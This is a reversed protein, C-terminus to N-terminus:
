KGRELDVFRYKLGNYEREEEAIKKNFEHEFPPFFADASKEDDIITLQLMDTHPLAAAYVQAGGIIYIKSKDYKMAEEIADDISATTTIATNRFSPWAHQKEQVKKWFTEPDKTLVVNQRNGGILPKGAYGVISDFTKRGMVLAHGLTLEKFRKLDDPINWLLKNGLGLERNRGIAAIAIVKTMRRIYCPSARSSVRCM